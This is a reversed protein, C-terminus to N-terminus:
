QYNEHIGQLEKSHKTQIGEIEEVTLKLVGVPTSPPRPPPPMPMPSCYSDRMNKNLLQEIEIRNIKEIDFGTLEQVIDRLSESGIVFYSLNILLVILRVKVSARGTNKDFRTVIPKRTWFLHLPLNGIIENNSKKIIKEKNIPFTMPQRQALMEYINKSEDTLEGYKLWDFADSIESM